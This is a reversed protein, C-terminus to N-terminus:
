RTVLVAIMALTMLPPPPTMSLTRNDNDGGGAFYVNRTPSHINPLLGRQLSGCGGGHEGDVEEGASLQIERSVDYADRQRKDEGRRLVAAPTSTPFPAM